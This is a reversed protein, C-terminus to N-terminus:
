RDYKDKDPNDRRDKSAVLADIVKKQDDNAIESLADVKNYLANLNEFFISLYEHKLHYSIKTDNGSLMFSKELLRELFSLLKSDSDLQTDLWNNMSPNEVLKKWMHLVQGIHRMNLLQNSDKLADDIKIKAINKLDGFDEEIFIYHDPHKEERRAIVEDYILKFALYLGNADRSAELFLRKKEDADFEQKKFYWHIIGMVRTVQSMTFMGNPEDSLDDSIEILASIFPVADDKSVQQSYNAFKSIFDDLVGRGHLDRLYSIFKKKNNTISLVYKFESESIDGEPLYLLFYRDFIDPHYIRLKRFASDHASNGFYHNSYAWRVNPFLINFFGKIAEKSRVDKSNMTENIIKKHREKQNGLLDPSLESAFIDKHKSINKYVSPEFQRLVELSVLDVFNVDISDKNKFLSTHFSLTSILRNVDRLNNFYNGLSATFINHWLDSDFKDSLDYEGFLEDLKKLLISHITSRPIRPLEFGVQVIKKLYDYGEYVGDEKLSDEVINRQFFTLYVINPFDANAKILKFLLRVENKSLRDIDDIVIITTRTIDSLSKKLANKKEELNTLKANKSLKLVLGCILSLLETLLSLVLLILSIWLLFEQDKEAFSYGLALAVTGLTVLTNKVQKNFKEVLENGLELYKSYDEIKKGVKRIAGNTSSKLSNSLELFFAKTLKESDGWQWPNFELISISNDPTESELDEKIMNKVSSKGEGWNGYVALVLSDKGQWNSVSTALEDSFKKRQLLDDDKTTIPRDSSFIHQKSLNSM